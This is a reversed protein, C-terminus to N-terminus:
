TTPLPEGFVLGDNVYVRVRPQGNPLEDSGDTEVEIVTVGDDGVYTVARATVKNSVTAKPDATNM